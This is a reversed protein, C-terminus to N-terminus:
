RGGHKAKIEYMKEDASRMGANFSEHDSCVSITYGVSVSLAYPKGDMSFRAVENEIASVISRAGEESIDKGLIVFEDGGYRCLFLREKIEGCVASLIDAIDCLASDGAAHGFTDNIKKFKDVDIMMIMLPTPSPRHIFNEVYRIMAKRNNIGTLADITTQNDQFRLSVLVISLTIGAQVSTIGYFLIQMICGIMPFILFLLLSAYENSELLNHSKRMIRFSLFGAYFLYFWSAIWHLFVGSGRVYLNDEGITFLFGHAPNSVSIATFLIFPLMHLFKQANTMKKGIRNCVYFFWIMSSLPMMTLYLINSGWLLVKDGFFFQGRCVIAVIDSICMIWLSVILRRMLIQPTTNISNNNHSRFFVISSLIM